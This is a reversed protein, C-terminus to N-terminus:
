IKRSEQSVQFNKDMWQLIYGVASTKWKRRDQAKRHWQQGAARRIDDMERAKPRGRDKRKSRPQWGTYRKTWRDTERAIHRARRWKQRQIYQVVDIVKTKQRIEM